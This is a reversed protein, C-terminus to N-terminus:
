FNYFTTEKNYLVVSQMSNVRKTSRFTQFYKKNIRKKEADWVCLLSFHARLFKCNWLNLEFQNCIRFCVFFNPLLSAFHINEIAVFLIPWPWIWKVIQFPFSCFQWRCSKLFEHFRFSIWSRTPFFIKLFKVFSFRVEFGCFLWFLWFFGFTLGEWFHSDIDYINRM